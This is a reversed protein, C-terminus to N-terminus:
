RNPILDQTKTVLNTADQIENFWEEWRSFFAGDPHAAWWADWQEQMWQTESAIDQPLLLKGSIYYSVAGPQSTKGEITERAIIVQDFVSVQYSEGAPLIKDRLVYAGALKLSVVQEINTLNTLNISKLVAVRENPVQYLLEFDTTLEGKSLRIASGM